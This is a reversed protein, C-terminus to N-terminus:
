AQAFRVSRPPRFLSPLDQSPPVGGVERERAREGVDPPIILSPARPVYGAQAHACSHCTPCGPPCEGGDDDSSREHECDASCQLHELVDVAFHAFGSIQLALVVAVAQVVRLVARGARGFRARM